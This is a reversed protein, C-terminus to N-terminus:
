LRNWPGYSYQYTGDSTLNGRDDYTRAVGAVDGYRHLADVSGSGAQDNYTGQGTVSLRSTEDSLEYTVTSGGTGLDDQSDNVIEGLRSARDHRYVDYLGSDHVRQKFTRRSLDDYGYALDHNTGSDLGTMCRYGDWTSTQTQQGGGPGIKRVDRRAPGAYDYDILQAGKWSGVDMRANADVQFGFAFCILILLPRVM